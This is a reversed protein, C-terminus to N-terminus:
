GGEADGSRRDRARMASMFAALEEGDDVPRAPGVVVNTMRDPRFSRWDSRLACWAGLTWARSWFWLGVPRVARREVVGDGKDYDFEVERGESIAQRLLGMHDPAAGGSWGAVAFIASRQVQDRVLPPLAAEIRGLLTTAARALAPDGRLQVVRMGAVLADVEDAALSMPPLDFGRGLRYGVGAEGEIPVGAEEVERVYRYITRVSCGLANALEQATAVRRARLLQLLQLLRDARQM